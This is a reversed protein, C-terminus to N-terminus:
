DLQSLGAAARASRIQERGYRVGLLQQTREAGLFRQSIANMPDLVYGNRRIQHDRDQLARRDAEPVPTAEDLWGLWRDFRKTVDARFVDIMEPTREATYSHASPSLFARMYTGHSVSWTLRTDGRLALWDANDEDYYRRLYDTDVMLDRRPVLECYYFLQPITGFVVVLHPVDTDQGLWTQFNMDLISAKRNGIWSHAMHEVGPGTWTALSGEYDGSDTAWYDLGECAPQPQVPFRAQARDRLGSLIEWLAAHTESVDVDPSEALYEHITKTQSVTM